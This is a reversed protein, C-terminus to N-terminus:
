LLCDFNKYIILTMTILEQKRKGLYISVMFPTEIIIILVTLLFLKHTDSYSAFDPKIHCNIDFIPYVYM